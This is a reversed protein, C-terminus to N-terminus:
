AGREFRLGLMTLAIPARQCFIRAAAVIDLAARQGRKALVEVLSYEPPAFTESGFHRFQCVRM